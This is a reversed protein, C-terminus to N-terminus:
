VASIEEVLLEFSEAKKNGILIQIERIDEGDYNPVDVSRGRFTAKMAAFPITIVEWKGKTPFTFGYSHRGNPGKVRFAYDKGDGKLRVHFASQGAVTYPSNPVHMVSSFGGNNELSVEGHFRLQGDDNVEMNGDSRGGMVTDDQIRWDNAAGAQSFSYLTQTADARQDASTDQPRPMCATSLLTLLLLLRMRTYGPNRSLTRYPSAAPAPNPPFLVTSGGTGRGIEAGAVEGSVELVSTDALLWYAASCTRFIAYGNYSVLSDM